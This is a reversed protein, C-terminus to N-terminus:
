PGDLGAAKLLRRRIIRDASPYNDAAGIVVGGEIELGAKKSEVFALMLKADPRLAFMVPCQTEYPTRIRIATCGVAFHTLKHLAAWRLATECRQVLWELKEPNLQQLSTLGVRKLMQDSLVTGNVTLNTNYRGSRLAKVWRQKLRRNMAM